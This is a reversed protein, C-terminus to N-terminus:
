QKRMLLICKGMIGRYNYLHHYDSSVQLWVERSKVNAELAAAGWFLALPGDKEGAGDVNRGLIRKYAIENIKYAKM